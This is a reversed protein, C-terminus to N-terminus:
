RITFDFFKQKQVSSRKEAHRIFGSLNDEVEAVFALVEKERGEVELTVRGDALNRVFGTVEFGKAVQVTQYRFGVGQVRGSFFATLHFVDSSSSPQAASMDCLVTLFALGGPLDKGCLM